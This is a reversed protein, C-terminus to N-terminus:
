SLNKSLISYTAYKLKAMEKEYSNDALFNKMGQQYYKYNNILKSIIDAQTELPANLDLVEGIHYKSVIKKLFPQPSVLMPIGLQAYEYIKNPSCYYNNLGESDYYVIGLKCSKSENLLKAYPIMGTFIVRDFLSLSQVMEQYLKVDPGTGILKLKIRPPLYILLKIFYSVNRKESLYGQYVIMDEKSVSGINIFRPAINRVSIVNRLQYIHKIIRRREDNATIVLDAKRISLREMLIFLMDRMSSKENKGKLLLEHADYIWRADIFRSLLLGLFATYYDHVYLLRIEKKKQLGYKLVYFWFSILLLPGKRMSTYVISQFNANKYNLSSNCSIVTVSEGLSEIAEAARIVRADYEIPNFVVMLIQKKCKM